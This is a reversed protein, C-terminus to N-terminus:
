IVDTAQFLYTDFIKAEAPLSPNIAKYSIFTFREINLKLSL